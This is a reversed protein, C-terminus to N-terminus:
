EVTVFYIDTLLPTGWPQAVGWPLGTLTAVFTWNVSDWIQLQGPTFVFLYMETTSYFMAGLRVPGAAISTLLRSGGRRKFGGQSVLAANLMQRAGSTYIKTDLRDWAAPNLQGKTFNSQFIRNWRPM